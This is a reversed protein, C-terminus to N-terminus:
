GVGEGGGNTGMIYVLSQSDRNREIAERENRELTHQEVSDTIYLINGPFTSKGANVHGISVLNFYERRDDEHAEVEM